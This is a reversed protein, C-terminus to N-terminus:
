KHFSLVLTFKSMSFEVCRFLLVSVYPALFPTKIKKLSNKNYIRFAFGKWLTRTITTKCWNLFKNAIDNQSCTLKWHSSSSTRKTSSWCVSNSKWLVLESFCCDESVNDQNRALWSKRRLAAHKASFCCIGIKYDKTQCLRPKFEREVASSALM